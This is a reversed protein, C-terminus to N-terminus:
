DHYGQSWHAIRTAIVRVVDPRCLAAEAPNRSAARLTTLLSLLASALLWAQEASTTSSRDCVEHAVAARFADACEHIADLPRAGGSPVDGSGVILHSAFPDVTIWAACSVVGQVIWAEVDTVDEGPFCSQARRYAERTLEDRVDGLSSFHYYVSSPAMQAARAVDALTARGDTEALVIAATALVDGRRSPRHQARVTPQSQVISADSM